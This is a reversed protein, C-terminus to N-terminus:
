RASGNQQKTGWVFAGGGAREVRVRRLGAEECRTMIMGDYGRPVVAGFTYTLAVVGGPAGVRAMEEVYPPANQLMVVVCLGDQFPLHAADAQICYPEPRGNGSWRRRTEKLMALSLDVCVVSAGPFARSLHRAVVGWGTCVDLVWERGRATDGATGDARTRRIADVAARLADEYTGGALRRATPEYIPALSDFWIRMVRVVLRSRLRNGPRWFVFAFVRGVIPLLSGLLARRIM